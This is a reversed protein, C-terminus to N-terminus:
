WRLVSFFAFILAAGILTGMWFSQARIRKTAMESCWTCQACRIGELVSEVLTANNKQFEKM